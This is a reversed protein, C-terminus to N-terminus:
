FLQIILATCAQFVESRLRLRAMLVESVIRPNVPFIKFTNPMDGFFAFLGLGWTLGEGRLPSVIMYCASDALDESNVLHHPVVLLLM